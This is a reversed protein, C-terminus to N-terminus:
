KKKAKPKVEVIDDKLPALRAMLDSQEEDEVKNDNLATKLSSITANWEAETIKMGKHADKIPKGLYECEGDSAKCLYTALRSRLKDLKDKPLKAFRKKTVDNHVLSDLFAAAIKEIGEAGGLREALTKPPSPEADAEVTGADSVTETITPEKPPVKKGCAVLGACTAGVIALCVLLRTRMAGHIPTQPPRPSLFLLTLVSRSFHALAM